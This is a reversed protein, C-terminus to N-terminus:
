SMPLPRVYQLLPVSSDTDTFGTLYMLTSSFQVLSTQIHDYNSDIYQDLRIAPPFNFVVKPAFHYLDHASANARNGPGQLAPAAYM